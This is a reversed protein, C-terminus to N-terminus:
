IVGLYRTVSKSSPKPATKAGTNEFYQAYQSFKQYLLAKMLSIFIKKNLCKKLESRSLQKKCLHCASVLTFLCEKFCFSARQKVKGM